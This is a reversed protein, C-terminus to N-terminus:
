LRSLSRRAQLAPIFAQRFAAELQEFSLQAAAPIRDQPFFRLRARYQCGLGGGSCAVSVESM